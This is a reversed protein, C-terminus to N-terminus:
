PTATNNLSIPGVKGECVKLLKSRLLEICLSATYFQAVLFTFM